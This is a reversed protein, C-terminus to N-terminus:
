QEGEVVMGLVCLWCGPKCWYAVASHPMCIKSSQQQRPKGDPFVSNGKAVPGPCYKPLSSSNIGTLLVM